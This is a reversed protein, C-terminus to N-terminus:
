SDQAEEPYLDGLLKEGGHRMVWLTPVRSYPRKGTYQEYRGWFTESNPPNERLAMGMAELVKGVDEPPPTTTLAQQIEAPTPVARLAAQLRSPLKYTM